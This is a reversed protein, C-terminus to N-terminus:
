KQFLVTTKEILNKDEFSFGNRMFENLNMILNNSSLIVLDSEVLLQSYKKMNSIPLHAFISNYSLKKLENVKGYYDLIDFKELQMKISGEGYNIIAVKDNNDARRESLKMIVKNELLSKKQHIVTVLRCM